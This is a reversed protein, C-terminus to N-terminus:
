DGSTGHGGFFGTMNGPYTAAPTPNNLNGLIRWTNWNNLGNNIGSVIANTGGVLGGATAAAGGTLYGGAQNTANLTNTGMTTGATQGLNAVDAGTRSGIGAIGSLRDFIKSRNDQFRTYANAAETSALDQNYNTIDKLAQGGWRNGVAARKANLAANGQEQRFQYGPDMNEMIDKMTYQNTFYGSPLLGAAADMEAQTAGYNLGSIGYDTATIPKGSADVAQGKDNVYTGIVSGPPSGTAGVSSRSPGLGLGGMLSSLALQGGQQYPANQLIGNKYMEATLANAERSATLQNKAALKAADAQVQASKDASKKGLLGGVISAGAGAAAAWSM